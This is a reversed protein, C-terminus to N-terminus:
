AAGLGRIVQLLITDEEPAVTRLDLLVKDDEIRVIVPPTATRFRREVEVPSVGDLAVCIGWSHLRADPVAGGGVIAELPVPVVGPGLEGSLNEARARLSAESADLMRCVPISERDGRLYALLVAELAALTLKDVRLARFLPNRRVKDVWIKRGAIIGAQPGGLLKDGSFSVLDVGAEVSAKPLPEEADLFSLDMLCGSGLDEFTPVGMNRGLAVIEPLTPQETFGVVKFNSRHVRLILRTDHGIAAQYDAARTRNTTGVERLIAGSKVMVDPIRFSDGIEVQEGRSVLVEGGEAVTNLVLLVAAANNNVVIAAESGLLKQILGAIHTDRKGRSGSQLDLELNSYGLATDRMHDMAAGPLPARGLNTHLIVGSANIVRRLSPRLVNEVRRRLELAIERTLTERTEGTAADRLRQRTEILIADLLKSAFPQQVAVGLDALEQRGLVENVPPIQRLARMSSMEACAYRM